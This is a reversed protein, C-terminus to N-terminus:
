RAKRGARVREIEDLYAQGERILTRVVDKAAREAHPAHSPLSAGIKSAERDLASELAALAVLPDDRSSLSAGLLMATASELMQVKAVLRALLEDTM